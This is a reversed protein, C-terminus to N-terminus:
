SRGGFRSQEQLELRRLAATFQERMTSLRSHVTGLPVGLLEAISACPTNEIEYLSFLARQEPDLSELALELRRQADRELLLRETQAADGVGGLSADPDLSTERRRQAKRRLTAAVRLGIGFLWTTLKASRDYSDLRRHVVLLVEQMADPLEAEPVGMRFLCKWLFQGYRAYIVAVDLVESESPSAWIEANSPVTLAQL